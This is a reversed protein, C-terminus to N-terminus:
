LQRGDGHDAAGAPQGRQGWWSRAGESGSGIADARNDLRYDSKQKDAGHCDICHEQLLPAIDKHYDIVQNAPAPLSDSAAAPFLLCLGLGSVAITSIKKM